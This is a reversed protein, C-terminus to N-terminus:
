YQFEVTVPLPKERNVAFFFVLNVASSHIHSEIGCPKMMFIVIWVVPIIPHKICLRQRHRSDINDFHQHIPRCHRHFKVTADPFIPIFISFRHDHVIFRDNQDFPPHGVDFPRATWYMFNQSGCGAAYAFASIFFPYSSFFLLTPLM